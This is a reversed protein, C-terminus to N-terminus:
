IPLINQYLITYRRGDCDVYNRSPHRPLPQRGSDRRVSLTGQAAVAAAPSGESSCRVRYRHSGPSLLVNAAGTGFSRATPTRFSSGRAVEVVGEGPCAEAFRIQVAVSGVVDHITGGAGATIAIHARAPARGTVDIIGDARLTGNEGDRLVYSDARGHLTTSGRRVAVAANGSAMRVGTSTGNGGARATLSGGPVEVTLDTEDASLTARGSDLSALAGSPPAAVLEGPGTM